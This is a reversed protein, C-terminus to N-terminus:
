FIKGRVPITVTRKSTKIKVEGSFDGLKVPPKLHLRVSYRQNPTITQVTAELNKLTSTVKEIKLEPGQEFALTVTKNLSIDDPHENVYNKNLGTFVIEQPYVTLPDRITGFVNLNLSRVKPHTTMLTFRGNIPGVPHNSPLIVKFVASEHDKAQTLQYKLNNDQAEVATIEFPKGDSSKIDFTRELSQGKFVLGFNQNEQPTVNLISKINAKISLQFNAMKPDNTAVMITKHIEGSFASTHVSATIKGTQGPAVTRDFKTVTCGCTPQVRTIELMGKGDNKIVFDHKITDGRTVTGADYSTQEVAANPLDGKSAEAAPKSPSATRVKSSKPPQPNGALVAVGVAFALLFVAFTTIVSSGKKM